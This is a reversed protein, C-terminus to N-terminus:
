SVTSGSVSDIEQFRIVAQECLTKMGPQLGPFCAVGAQAQATASGPDIPQATLPAGAGAAGGRPGPDSAGNNTVASTETSVGEEGDPPQFGEPLQSCGALVISVPFLLSTAFNRRHVKM